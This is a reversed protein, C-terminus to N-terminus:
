NWYNFVAGVVSVGLARLLEADNNDHPPRKFLNWFVWLGLADSALFRPDRKNAALRDYEREFLTKCDDFARPASQDWHILGAEIADLLPQKQYDTLGIQGLRSTALFVFAVTVVFDWQEGEVDFLVPFREALAMKMPNAFLRSVQALDRARKLRPDQRGLLRGLLSM